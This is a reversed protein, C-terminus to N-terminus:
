KVEIKKNIKIFSVLNEKIQANRKKYIKDNVM